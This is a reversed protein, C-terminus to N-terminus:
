GNSHSEAALFRARNKTFVTVDWPAEGMTLGVFWRMAFNYQMEQMLRRESRYGYLVLLLLARLLREPAVSPRGTQSYLKALEGEMRRLVADARRRIPRLPHDVPILEEISITCFLEDQPQDPTRMLNLRNELSM